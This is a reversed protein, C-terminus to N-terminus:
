ILKLPIGEWGPPILFEWVDRSIEPTQFNPIKREGLIGSNKERGKKGSIQLLELWSFCSLQVGLVRSSDQFFKWSKEPIWCEWIEPFYFKFFFTLVLSNLRPFFFFSPFFSPFPIKHWPCPQFKMGVRQFQFKMGFNPFGKLCLHRWAPFFKPEVPFNRIKGLELFTHPSSHIHSPYGLFDQFKEKGFFIPIEEWPIWIWSKRM